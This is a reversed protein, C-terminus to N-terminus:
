EERYMWPVLNIELAALIFMIQDVVELYPVSQPTEKARKVPPRLIFSHIINVLLEVYTDFRMFPSLAKMKALRKNQSEHLVSNLVLAYQSPDFCASCNCHNPWHLRDSIFLSKMFSLPDRNMCYEYLNCCNDYIILGETLIMLFVLLKKLDLLLPQTFLKVLNVRQLYKSDSVNGMSGVGIYCYDLDWTNAM